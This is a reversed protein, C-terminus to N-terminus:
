SDLAAKSYCTPELEHVVTHHSILPYRTSHYLQYESFSKPKTSGTRSQTVM